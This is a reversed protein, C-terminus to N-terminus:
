QLFNDKKKYKRVLFGEMKIGRVAEVKDSTVLCKQLHQLDSGMKDQFHPVRKNRDPHQERRYIEKSEKKVKTTEKVNDRFIRGFLDVSPKELLEAQEKIINKVRQKDQVAFPVNMRRNFTVVNFAQGILM